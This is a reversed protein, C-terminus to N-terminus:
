ISPLPLPPRIVLCSTTRWASAGGAGDGEGAGEGEGDGDVAAAVAVAVAGEGARVEPDPPVRLDAAYVGSGPSRTIGIDGMRRIM